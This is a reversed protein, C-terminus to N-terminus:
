TAVIILLEGASTADTKAVQDTPATATGIAAREVVASVACRRSCERARARRQSLPRMSTARSAALAAPAAAYTQSVSGGRRGRGNRREGGSFFFDTNPTIRFPAQDLGFHQYYM